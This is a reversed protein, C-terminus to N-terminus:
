LPRRSLNAGIVFSVGDGVFELVHRHTDHSSRLRGTLGDRFSVGVLPFLPSDVARSPCTSSPWSCVHRTFGDQVFMRQWSLTGPLVHRRADHASGAPSAVRSSCAPSCWSRRQGLLGVKHGFAGGGATLIANSHGLNEFFAPLRLANMGGSIIPTTEAM